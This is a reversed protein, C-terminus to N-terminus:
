EVKQIRVISLHIIPEIKAAMHKKLSDFIGVDLSQTLHSSHPPLIVLIINNDMCHAVWEDIIHSDYEDYILLRYEEAAKDRIESEFCRILWEM